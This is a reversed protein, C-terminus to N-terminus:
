FPTSKSCFSWLPLTSHCLFVLTPLDKDKISIKVFTSAYHEWIQRSQFHFKMSWSAHGEWVLALWHKNSPSDGIGFQVASLIRYVKRCFLHNRPAEERHLLVKIIQSQVKCIGAKKARLLVSDSSFLICCLWGGFWEIIHISFGWIIKKVYVNFLNAKRRDWHSTKREM